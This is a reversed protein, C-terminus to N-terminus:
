LSIVNVCVTTSGEGHEEEEAAAAMGGVGEVGIIVM